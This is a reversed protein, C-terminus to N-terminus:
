YIDSRGVPFTDMDERRGMKRERLPGMEEV